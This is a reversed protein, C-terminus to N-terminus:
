KQEYQNKLRDRIWSLVEFEALSVGCLVERLERTDLRVEKNATKHRYLFDRDPHGQILTIVTSVADGLPTFDVHNKFFTARVTTEGYLGDRKETSSIELSGGTQEAALKLFPIGLGVRRTTRTTYFPDTVLKLAEASMGCGNDKITLTLTKENEEVTIETLTAGAMLSNEAIDLINLSLEKM